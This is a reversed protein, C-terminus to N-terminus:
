GDENEGEVIETLRIGFNEDIVVVEGLAIRNGGARLTVPEGALADLKVISGSDLEAIEAATLETSGLTVEVPVFVDRVSRVKM